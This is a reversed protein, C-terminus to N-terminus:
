ERRRGRLTVEEERGLGTRRQEVEPRLGVASNALHAAKDVNAGVAAHLRVHAPGAGKDHVCRLPLQAEDCLRGGLGLAPHRGDAGDSTAAAWGSRRKLPLPGPPATSPPLHLLCGCLLHHPSRGGSASRLQRRRRRRRPWPVRHPRRQTQQLADATRSEPRERTEDGRQPRREADVRGAGLGKGARVGSEAGSGLIRAAHRCLRPRRSAHDTEVCRRRVRQRAAAAPQRTRSVGHCVM